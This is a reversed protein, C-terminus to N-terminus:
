LKAYIDGSFNERKNYKEISEFLGKTDSWDQLEMRQSEGVSWNFRYDGLQNLRDVCAHTRQPTWNFFEFSVVPIAQSLGKLVEEEFDEVDIKCFKPLGYQEILQDLTTVPVEITEGWEVRINSRENLAKRWNEDALSSVTPANHSIYMPLIGPEAGVAKKVLVFESASTFKKKLFQICIPQPELAIVKAGLNLWANTRNGLHAGVDFCLDGSKIFTSYFRKLRRQNFPKGYYMLWSRLLGIKSKWNM